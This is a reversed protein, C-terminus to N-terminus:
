RRRTGLIDKAGSEGVEEIEALLSDLDPPDDEEMPDGLVEALSAVTPNEFIAEASLTVGLTERVRAILGVASLSDLGLEFLDRDIGVQGTGLAAGVAAALAVECDNRPAQYEVEPSGDDRLALARRDVKGFPLTPLAEVVVFRGPVMHPPLEELLLERLRGVAPHGEDAVVYAVLRPNGDAGPKSIVAAERIGALGSIVTEVSTLHVRQGSVKVMDDLRGLHELQGDPRLRGLDGTRYTREDSGGSSALFSAATEESDNWYGPSLYASTVHIEGIEGEPVPLGDKGVIEVRRGPAPRGVPVISSDVLDGPEYLAAAVLYTETTGLGNRLSGSTFRSGFLELDARFLPEGGARIMRMRPYRGTAEVASLWRRLVTPVMHTVTIGREEMWVAMAEIGGVKVDFMDLKAGNLLAGMVDSVSAGFTLPIVLGFADDIGVPFLTNSANTDFLVNRHVQIVGKPQGTSGSTHILNFHDTPSVTPLAPVEDAVAGVDVVVPRCQPAMEAALDEAGPALVVVSAGSSAIKSGARAAPETSEVPVYACGASVIGLLGVISELSLDSLLAVKDGPGAVDLLEAAVRSAKSALEGFTLSRDSMDAVAERDPLADAVRFFRDGVSGALDRETWAPAFTGSAETM